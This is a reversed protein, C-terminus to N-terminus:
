CPDVVNRKKTVLLPLNDVDEVKWAIYNLEFYKTLTIKWFKKNAQLNAVNM